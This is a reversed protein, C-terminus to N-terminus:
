EKITVKGEVVTQVARLIINTYQEPKNRLPRELYKGGASGDSPEIKSPPRKLTKPGRRQTRSGGVNPGDYQMNEHVKASYNHEGEAGGTATATIQTRLMSSTEEVRGDNAISNQLNGTDIPALSKARAVLHLAAKRLGLKAANIIKRNQESLAKLVNDLGPLSAM